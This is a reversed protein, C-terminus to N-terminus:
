TRRRQRPKPEPPAGIANTIRMAADKGRKKDEIAEQVLDSVTQYVGTVSPKELEERPAELIPAEEARILDSFVPTKEIALLEEKAVRKAFRRDRWRDFFDKVGM